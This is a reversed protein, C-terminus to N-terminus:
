PLAWATGTVFAAQSLAGRLSIPVPGHTWPACDGPRYYGLPYQCEHPPHIGMKYPLVALDGFFRVTSLAPQVVPGWEHGYRELQVDEFYLPKHCVGSAKWTLVSDAFMREAVEQNGLSCTVPIGWAEAVFVQDPDSLRRYLYTTRTGDESELVVTGYVLDVLKGKTIEEGTISYWTRIPSETVFKDKTNTVARDKTPYGEVFNPSSDVRISRIDLNDVFDRIADCNVTSRETRPPPMPPLDLADGNSESPIQRDSPSDETRNSRPFPNPIIPPTVPEITEQPLLTSPDRTPPDLTPPDSLADRVDDLNPLPTPATNGGPLNQVPPDPLVPDQAILRSRQAPLEKLTPPTKLRVPTSTPTTFPAPQIDQSEQNTNERQTWQAAVVNRRSSVVPAEEQAGTSPGAPILQLPGAAVPNSRAENSTETASHGAL